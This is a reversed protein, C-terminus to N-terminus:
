PKNSSLTTSHYWNRYTTFKILIITSHIKHMKIMRYKYQRHGLTEWGSERLIKAASAFKTAGTVIRGSKTQLKEQDNTDRQNCNGWVIDSYELLPRIFSFYMCELTKRTIRLSNSMVSEIIFIYPKVGGCDM